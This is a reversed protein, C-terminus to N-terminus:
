KVDIVDWDGDRTYELDWDGHVNPDIWKHDVIFNLKCCKRIKKRRLAHCWENPDRKRENKPYVCLWWERSDDDENFDGETDSETM